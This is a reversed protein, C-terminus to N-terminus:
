VYYVLNDEIVPIFNATKGGEALGQEYEFFKTALDEMYYIEQKSLFREFYAVVHVHTHEKEDDHIVAIYPLPRQLYNQMEQM